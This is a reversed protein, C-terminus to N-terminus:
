ILVLIVFIQSQLIFIEIFSFHLSRSSGKGDINRSCLIDPTLRVLAALGHYWELQRELLEGINLRELWRRQWWGTL